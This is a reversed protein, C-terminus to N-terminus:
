MFLRNGFKKKLKQKTKDSQQKEHSSSYLNLHVVRESDLADAVAEAGTDGIDCHMLDLSYLNKLWPARALEIAGKDGLPNSSL